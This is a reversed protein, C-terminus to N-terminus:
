SDAKHKPPLYYRTNRRHEAGQSMTPYYGHEHKYEARWRAEYRISLWSMAARFVDEDSHEKLLEELSQYSM